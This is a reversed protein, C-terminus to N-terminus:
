LVDSLCHMECSKDRKLHDIEGDRLYVRYCIITMDNPAFKYDANEERSKLFNAEFNAIFYKLFVIKANHLESVCHLEDISKPWHIKSIHILQILYPLGLDTREITDLMWQGFDVSSRIWVFGTMDHRRVGAELQRELDQHQRGPRRLRADPWGDVEPRQDSFKMDSM